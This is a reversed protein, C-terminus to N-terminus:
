HSGQLRYNTLVAVHMVSGSLKLNGIQFQCMHCCGNPLVCSTIPTSVSSAFNLRQQHRIGCQCSYATQSPISGQTTSLSQPDEVFHAAYKMRAQLHTPFGVGMVNIFSYESKPKCICAQTKCLSQWVMLFCACNSQLFPQVQVYLEANAKQRKLDHACKAHEQQM